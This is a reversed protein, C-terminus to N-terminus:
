NTSPRNGVPGVGDLKTCMLSVTRCFKRFHAKIRFGWQKCSFPIYIVKWLRNKEDSLEGIPKGFLFMEYHSPWNKHSVHRQQWVFRNRSLWFFDLFFFFEMTGLALDWNRKKAWIMTFSISWFKLDCQYKVNYWQNRTFKNDSTLCHLLVAAFFFIKRSKKVCKQKKATFIAFWWSLCIVGNSLQPWSLNESGPNKM